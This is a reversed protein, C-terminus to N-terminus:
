RQLHQLALRSSELAKKIRALVSLKPSRLPAPIVGRRHSPPPPCFAYAYINQEMDQSIRRLLDASQSIYGQTINFPCM